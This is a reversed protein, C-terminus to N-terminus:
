EEAAAESTLSVKHNPALGLEPGGNHWYTFLAKGIINDEPVLWGQRSDSSNPRNDGMVFYCAPAGCAVASRRTNAPPVTWKCNQACTTGGGIYPEDVLQGNVLVEGTEPRIEISDGPVGIIRKIFDRQVNTPSRFVIVDGRAPTGWLHQKSNDGADFFPLWDFM